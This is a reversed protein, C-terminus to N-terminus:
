TKNKQREARSVIPKYGEPTPDERKSFPGMPEFFGLHWGTEDYLGAKMLIDIPVSFFFAALLVSLVTYPASVDDYFPIDIPTFEFLVFTVVLGLVLSIVWATIQKIAM